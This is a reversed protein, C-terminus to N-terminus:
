KGRLYDKVDVVVVSGDRLMRSAIRQDIRAAIQELSMNGTWVRWRGEGDSFMQYLKFEFLRDRM